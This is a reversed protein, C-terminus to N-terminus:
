KVFLHFVWGSAAVFASIVVLFVKTGTSLENVAKLIGVAQLEERPPLKHVGTIDRQVDDVDKAVSVLNTRIQKLEELLGHRIEDLVFKLEHLATSNRSGLHENAQVLTALRDVMSVQQTLHNVLNRLMGMLETREDTGNSSSM